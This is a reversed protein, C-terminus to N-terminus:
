MISIYKFYAVIDGFLIEPLCGQVVAQCEKNLFEILRVTNEVKAM